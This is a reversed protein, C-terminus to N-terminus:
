ELDPLIVNAIRKKTKQSDEKTNQKALFRTNTDKKELSKNTINKKKKVALVKTNM